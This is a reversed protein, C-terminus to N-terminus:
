KSIRDNMFDLAEKFFNIIYQKIPSFPVFQTDVTRQRLVLREEVGEVERPRKMNKKKKKNRNKNKNKNRNRNKKNQRERTPHNGIIDKINPKTKFYYTKDIRGKRWIPSTKPIFNKKNATFMVISGRPLRQPGDLASALGGLTLYQNDSNEVVEWQKDIEDFVLLSRISINSVLEVLVSDTMNQMGLQILYVPMNYKIAIYEVMTTKGTRPKGYLFYGRRYIQGKEKYLPESNIFDNVDTDMKSMEPTLKLKTIDRPPRFKPHGWGDLKATYFMATNESSCYNLYTSTLFSKLTDMSNLKHTEIILQDEGYTILLLGHKTQLFHKGYSLRFNPSLGGDTATLVNDHTKSRFLAQCVAFICKPNKQSKIVIRRTVANRIQQGVWIIVEKIEAQFLWIFGGTIVSVTLPAATAM